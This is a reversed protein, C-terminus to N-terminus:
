NTSEAGLYTQIYYDDDGKKSSYHWINFGANEFLKKYNHSFSREYGYIISNPNENFNHRIGNPEIAVFIVNGLSQIVKLFDQLKEQTFYELVGRSTVFITNEKGFSSVWEFGDAAVFNLKEDSKYHDSNVQIQEESLDIGVFSKIQTFRKSLYDLVKGNGTGIEILTKFHTGNKGLKKQLLDFVFACDPLFKTEFSDDTDSFFEAGKHQWYNIHLQELTGKDGKRELDNLIVNRMLRETFSLNKNTALTLGEAKLKNVRNKQFVVLLRGFTKTLLSLIIRKLSNM